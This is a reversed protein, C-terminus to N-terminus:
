RKLHQTVVSASIVGNQQKLGYPRDSDIWLDRQNEPGFASKFINKINCVLKIITITIDGSALDKKNTKKESPLLVSFSNWTFEDILKFTTM